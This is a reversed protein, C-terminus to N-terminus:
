DQTLFNDLTIQSERYGFDAISRNLSSRDLFGIDLAHGFIDASIGTVEEFLDSDSGKEVIDNCNQEIDTTIFLYTPIRRLATQAKERIDELVKKLDTKERQTLTRSVKGKEVESTSGLLVEIKKAKTASLDALAELLREDASNSCINRASGFRDSFNGSRSMAMMVDGVEREVIGNEGHELLSAVELFEKIAKETSDSAQATISCYDYVLELLRQPNFDIVLCEDHWRDDHGKLPSQARFITQFYKEPSKGGDLMIVTKWEPVTVGTDFRGCSVTITRTNREIAEKVDGINVTNNGSANIIDYDEFNPHNRLMECLATVSDISMPLMWLMHDLLRNSISDAQYPSWSQGKVRKKGITALFADVVSPYEFKNDRAAFMKEIRFGDEESYGSDAAEEIVSPHVNFTHFKMTPMCQHPESGEENKKKQEDVYRWSFIEEDSYEGSALTKYPTGSLKLQHSYTLADLVETAKPTKMGYHEEDLIVLDWDIDYIWGSSAKKKVGTFVLDGNDDTKGGNLLQQFSEFVVTPDNFNVKGDKAQSASWGSFDVHQELDNRWSDFVSPKYTLVLVKKIGMARVVQYATFTKGFRMKANMLFREGGNNFHGVIENCCDQQEPRMSYSNPRAVGQTLQNFASKVTELNCKFWERKKSVRNPLLKHLQKDTHASSQCYWLLDYNPSSNATKIQQRIREHVGQEGSGQTTEGVKINGLANEAPTTYVYIRRDPNLM